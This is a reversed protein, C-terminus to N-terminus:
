TKGECGTDQIRSGTVLHIRAEHGQGEKRSSGVGEKMEKGNGERGTDPSSGNAGDGLDGFGCKWVKHEPLTGSEPELGLARRRLRSRGTETCPGTGIRMGMGM